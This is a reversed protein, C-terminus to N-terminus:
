RSSPAAGSLATAKSVVREPDCGCLRGANSEHDGDVSGTPRGRDTFGPGVDDGAIKPWSSSGASPGSVEAGTRAPKQGGVQLFADELVVRELREILVANALQDLDADRASALRLWLQLDADTALM